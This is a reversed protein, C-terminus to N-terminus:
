NTCLDVTAGLWTLYELVATGVPFKHLLLLWLVSVSVSVRVSLLASPESMPVLQSPVPQCSVPRTFLTFM